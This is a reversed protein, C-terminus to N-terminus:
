KIELLIKSLKTRQGYVEKYEERDIDGPYYGMEKCYNEFTAADTLCNVSLIYTGPKMEIRGSASTQHCLMQYMPQGEYNLIRVDAVLGEADVQIEFNYEEEKQVNFARQIETGPVENEINLSVIPIKMSVPLEPLATVLAVILAVAALKVTSKASLSADEAMGGNRAQKIMQIFVDFIHKRKAMFITLLILAMSVISVIVPSIGSSHLFKVADEKDNPLPAFMAYVPFVVWAIVAETAAVVFYTYAMHYVQSKREKAYFLIGVYSVLLPLAVGAVYCLSETVATFNDSLWWTYAHIISIKIDQGGCLFIVLAHGLEHFITCAVVSVFMMVINAFVFRLKYTM